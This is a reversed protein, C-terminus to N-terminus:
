AIAGHQQDAKGAAQPARLDDPQITATVLGLIRGAPDLDEVLAQNDGQAALGAPALELDAAARRIRGARDDGQLDPQLQRPDAVARQEPAHSALALLDSGIPEAILLDRPQDFARGQGGADPGIQRLALPLRLEGPMRQAGAEGGRGLDVLAVDLLLEAMGAGLHGALVLAPAVTKPDIEGFGRPESAM